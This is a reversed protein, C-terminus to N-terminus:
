LAEGFSFLPIRLKVEQFRGMSKKAVESLKDLRVRFDENGALVLENFKLTVRLVWSFNQSYGTIAIKSVFVVFFLTLFVSRVGLELLLILKVLLLLL